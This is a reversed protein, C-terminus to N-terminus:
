ERGELYQPIATALSALAEDSVIVKVMVVLAKEAGYEYLPQPRPL